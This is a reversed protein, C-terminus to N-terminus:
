ALVLVAAGRVAGRRLGNLVENAESLDFATVETRVPVQPALELFEVGDDRTLNAVSRLVREGWLLEYPFPPIDSMHIGGCIVTGGKATARLALPVLTGDPAFIIAADLEEPPMQSTDGAWFAGMEMAFGQAEVDGPRSFAYIRRDQWRAVQTVIHAAAGFGYIGIREAKKAMKLCRYGILGGCLLPAAQLDPYGAPIRFCFRHDAVAFEAFGGNLHYGTFRANDCLNEQGSICYHCANCSSGLWPVGVRDGEKFGRVNQGYSEVIGVIQHGPILPLKPATLEGDLIHLDTRCVGCSHVRLLIQDATPMPIPVFKYRLPKNPAELVM